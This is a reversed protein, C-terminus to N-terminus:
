HGKAVDPLLSYFVTAAASAASTKAAKKAATRATSLDTWKKLQEASLGKYIIDFEETTVPDNAKLYDQYFLNQASLSEKNARKKAKKSATSAPRKSPVSQAADSRGSPGAAAGFAQDLPNVIKTNKPVAANSSESAGASSSPTPEITSSDPPSPSESAAISSAPSPDLAPEILSSHPSPPSLPTPNLTGADEVAPNYPINGTGTSLQAAPQTALPVSSSNPSPTSSGATQISSSEDTQISPTTPTPDPDLSNMQYDDPFPSTRRRKRPESSPVFIAKSKRKQGALPPGSSSSRSASPAHSIPDLNDDDDSGPVPSGESCSCVCNCGDHGLSGGRSKRKVAKTYWSSYTNTALFDVKWHSKCLRLCPHAAYMQARHYNLVTLSAAGWTKPLDDPSVRLIERYVALQTNRIEQAEKGTLITGDEKELYTTM